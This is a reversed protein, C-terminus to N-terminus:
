AFGCARLCGCRRRLRSPAPAFLERICAAGHRAPEAARLLRRFRKAMQVIAAITGANHTAFQPFFADKTQAPLAACTLYGRIPIINTPSCQIRQCGMEQARKIESDWYARQGPPVDIACRVKRALDGVHEILELSRTQYAQLALLYVPGRRTTRRCGRLLAEFVDLSLELHDVAEADITLNIRPTSGDPLTLCVRPVLEATARARQADEYRPAAGLAKSRSATPPRPAQTRRPQTRNRALQRIAHQYSAFYRDADGYHAGEGLMDFSFRLHPESRRQSKAESLADRMTQGLVFQRALLQVARLTAAVVTRAGLKAFLGPPQDADPLNKSRLSRVQFGASRARVPATALNGDFSARGLQDATLAIATASDPM